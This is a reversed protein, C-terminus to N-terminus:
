GSTMAVPLPPGAGVGPAGTTLGPSQTSDAWVILPAPCTMPCYPPTPALPLMEKEMDLPLTLRCPTPGQGFVKGAAARLPPRLADPGDALKLAAACSHMVLSPSRFM